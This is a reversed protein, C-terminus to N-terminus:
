QRAATVYTLISSHWCLIGHCTTRMVADPFNAGALQTTQHSIGGDVIIGVETLTLILAVIPLENFIRNTPLL